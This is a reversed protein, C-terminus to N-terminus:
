SICRWSAIWMYVFIGVEGHKYLTNDGIYVLSVLLSPSLTSSSSRSPHQLLPHTHTPNLSIGIKGRRSALVLTRSIYIKHLSWGKSSIMGSKSLTIFLPMSLLLIHGSPPKSRKFQGLHPKFTLITLIPHNPLPVLDLLLPLPACTTCSLGVRWWRTFIIFQTPTSSSNTWHQFAAHTSGWPIDLM